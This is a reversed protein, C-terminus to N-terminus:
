CVCLCLCVIFVYRKSAAQIYLHADSNCIISALRYLDDAERSSFFDKSEEAAAAVSRVLSPPAFQNELLFLENDTFFSLRFVLGRFFIDLSSRHVVSRM